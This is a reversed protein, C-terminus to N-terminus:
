TTVCTTCRARDRRRSQLRHPPHLLGRSLRRAAAPRAHDRDSRGRQPRAGGDFNDSDLFRRYHDRIRVYLQAQEPNWYGRLGGFWGTGYNFVHTMVSVKAEEIPRIAGEFYAFQTM